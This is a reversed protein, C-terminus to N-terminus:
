KKHYDQALDVGTLYSSKTDYSSLFVTGGRSHGSGANSVPISTLRDPYITVAPYEAQDRKPFVDRFARMLMAYTAHGELGSVEYWTKYKPLIIQAEKLSLPDPWTKDSEHKMFASIVASCVVIARRVEPPCTPPPPPPIPASSFGGSYGTFQAVPMSVQVIKEDKVPGWGDEAKSEGM